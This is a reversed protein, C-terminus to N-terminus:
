EIELFVAQKKFEVGASTEARPVTQKGRVGTSLWAVEGIVVHDDAKTTSTSCRMGDTGGRRALGADYASRQEVDHLVEFAENICQFVAKHGGPKDPHASLARRKFARKVDETSASKLVDLSEYCRFTIRLDSAEVERQQERVRNTGGLSM